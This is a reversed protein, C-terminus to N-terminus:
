LPPMPLTVGPLQEDVFESLRDVDRDAFLINFAAGCRQLLIYSQDAFITHWRATGSQARLLDAQTIPERQLCIRPEDGTRHYRCQGLLHEDTISKLRCTECATNM